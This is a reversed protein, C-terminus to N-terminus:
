LKNVIICRCAVGLAHFITEFSEPDPFLFFHGDLVRTCEGDNAENLATDIVIVYDSFQSLEIFGFSIIAGFM